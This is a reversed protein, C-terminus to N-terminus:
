PTGGWDPGIESWGLTRLAQAARSATPDASASVPGLPILQAPVLGSGPIGTQDPTLWRAVTIRASSGDDFSFVRQVSGKGFTAEGVLTARDYDVLAGAVIEAASATGGNVLVTMPLDTVPDGAIIPLSELDGPSADGDEWLAPGAGAAVFRGIVEQASEVYGGGNDRLDLVIAAAGDDRAHGLAIDLQATTKDNFIEIRIHATEFAELFDYTVVLPEIAAREMSFPLPSATGLRSVEVTVSSGIPGRVLAGAADPDLGVLSQGDVTVILDGPLLGAAEAPTGPITSVVRLAGNEGDINVGIGGFEGDLAAAAPAALEPPLFSTYPDELTAVMGAVAAYELDTAFADAGDSDPRYFYEERLLRGVEQVQEFPRDGSVVDLPSANRFISREAIMGAGFSVVAILAALSLGFALQWGSPGSTIAPVPHEDSQDVWQDRVTSGDPGLVPGLLPPTIADDNAARRDDM